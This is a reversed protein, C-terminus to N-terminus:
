VINLCIEFKQKQAIEERSNKDASNKVRKVRVKFFIHQNNENVHIVLVKLCAQRRDNGLHSCNGFPIGWRVILM